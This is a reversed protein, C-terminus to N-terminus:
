WWRSSSAPGGPITSVTPWEVHPHPAYGELALRAEFAPPTEPDVMVKRHRLGAYVEDARALVRDIEKDTAARVRSALNADHVNSTEANRVFRARPEEVVENGLEHYAARADFVGRILDADSL